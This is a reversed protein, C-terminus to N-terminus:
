IGKENAQSDIVDTDDVALTHMIRARWDQPPREVPLAEGRDTFVRDVPLSAIIGTDANFVRDLVGFAQIYFIMMANPQKRSAEYNRWLADLPFVLQPYKWWDSAWKYRASAGQQFSFVHAVFGEVFAPLNPYYTDQQAMRSGFQKSAQQDSKEPQTLDVMTHEPQAKSEPQSQLSQEETDNKAEPQGADQPVEPESEPHPTSEPPIVDDEEIMDPTNEQNVAHEVPMDERPDAHTFDGGREAVITRLFLAGYGMRNHRLLTEAAALVKQKDEETVYPESSHTDSLITSFSSAM